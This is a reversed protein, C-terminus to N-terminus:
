KSSVSRKFSFVYGRRVKHFATRSTTDRLQFSSKKEREREVRRYTQRRKRYSVTAKDLERDGERRIAPKGRLSSPDVAINRVTFVLIASIRSIRVVSATKYQRRFHIPPFCRFTNQIFYGVYFKESKEHM